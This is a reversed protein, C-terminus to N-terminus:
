KYDLSDDDDDFFADLEKKIDKNTEKKISKLYWYLVFPIVGLVTTIILFLM